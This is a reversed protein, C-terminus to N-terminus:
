NSDQKRKKSKKHTDASQNDQVAERKGQNLEQSSSSVHSEKDEVVTHAEGAGELPAAKDKRSSKKMKKAAAKEDGAEPASSASNDERSELERKNSHKSRDPEGAETTTGAPTDKKKGKVKSEKSDAATAAEKGKVKGKDGKDSSPVADKGKNKIQVTTTTSITAGRHHSHTLPTLLACINEVLKAVVPSFGSVTPTTSPAASQGKNSDKNKDKDKDKSEHKHDGSGAPTEKGPYQRLLTVMDMSSKAVWDEKKVLVASQVWEVLTKACQLVPKIRKAPPWSPPVVKKEAEDGVASTTTTTTKAGALMLSLTKSISAFIEPLLSEICENAQAGLKNKRKIISDLIRCLELITYYLITYPLKNYLTLTTTPYRINLDYHPLIAPPPFDRVQEAICVSPM